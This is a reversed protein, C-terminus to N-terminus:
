DGRRVENNNPLSFKNSMDIIISSCGSADGHYEIEVLLYV